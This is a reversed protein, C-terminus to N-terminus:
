FNNLIIEIADNLFQRQYKSHKSNIYYDDPITDEIINEYEDYTRLGIYILNCKSDRSCSRSIWEMKFPCKEPVYAFFYNNHISCYFFMKTMDNSNSITCYESLDEHISTTSSYNQEISDDLSTNNINNHSQDTLSITDYKITSVSM